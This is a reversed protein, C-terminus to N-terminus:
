CPSVSTTITAHQELIYKTGESCTQSTTSELCTIQSDIRPASAPRLKPGRRWAGLAMSPAIWMTVDIDRHEPCALMNISPWGLSNSTNDVGFMHDPFRNQANISTCGQPAMGAITRMSMFTGGVEPRCLKPHYLM